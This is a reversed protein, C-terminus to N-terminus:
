RPTIHWPWTRDRHNRKTRSSRRCVKCMSKYGRLIHIHLQRRRKQRSGRAEQLRGHRQRKRDKWGGRRLHGTFRPLLPHTLFTGNPSSCESTIGKNEIGDWTQCENCIYKYIYFMKIDNLFCKPCRFAIIQSMHFNFNCEKLVKLLLM